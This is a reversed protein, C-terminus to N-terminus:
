HMDLTILSRKVRARQVGDVGGYKRKTWPPTVVYGEPSRLGSVWAWFDSIWLALHLHGTREFM